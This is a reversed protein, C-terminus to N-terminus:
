SFRVSLMFIARHSSGISIGYCCSYYEIFASANRQPSGLVYSQRMRCKALWLPPSRRCRPRSRLTSLVELENAIAPRLAGAHWRPPPTHLVLYRFYSAAALARTVTGPIVVNRLLLTMFYYYRQCRSPLQCRLPLAAAFCLMDAPWAHIARAPPMLFRTRKDALFLLPIMIIHPLREYTKLTRVITRM